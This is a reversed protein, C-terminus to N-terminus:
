IKKITETLFENQLENVCYNINDKYKLYIDEHFVIIDQTTVFPIRKILLYNITEDIKKFDQYDPTPNFKNIDIVFGEM